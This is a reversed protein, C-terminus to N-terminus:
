KSEPLAEGLARERAEREMRLARELVRNAIVAGCRRYGIPALESNNCISLVYSSTASKGNDNRFRRLGPGGLSGFADSALGFTVALDALTKNIRENTSDISYKKDIDAFFSVAYLNGDVFHALAKDFYQFKKKVAVVRYRDKLRGRGDIMQPYKEIPDGFAVGLYEKLFADIKTDIVNQEVEKAPVFKPEAVQKPAAKVEVRYLDKEMRAIRSELESIRVNANDVQTTTACGAVVAVAGLLIVKRM